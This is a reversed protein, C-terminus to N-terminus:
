LEAALRAEHVDLDVRAAVGGLRDTGEGVVAEGGLRPQQHDVAVAHDPGAVLARDGGALDLVGEPGEQGLWPPEPPERPWARSPGPPRRASPGGDGPRARGPWPWAPPRRRCRRGARGPATM